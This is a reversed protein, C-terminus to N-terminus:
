NVLGAGYSNISQCGSDPNFSGTLDTKDLNNGCDLTVGVWSWYMVTTNNDTSFYIFIYIFIYYFVSPTM